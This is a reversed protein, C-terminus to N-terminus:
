QTEREKLAKEAEARTLFVKEYERKVISAGNLNLIELDIGLESIKISLVAGQNIGNGFHSVWYVKDGVKCPMVKILGEDVAQFLDPLMNLAAAPNEAYTDRLTQLIDPM